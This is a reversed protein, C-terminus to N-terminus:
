TVYTHTSLYNKDIVFLILNSEYCVKIRFLYLFFPQCSVNMREYPLSYPHIAYGGGGPNIEYLKAFLTSYVLGKM